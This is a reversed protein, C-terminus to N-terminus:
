RTDIYIRPADTGMRGAIQNSRRIDNDRPGLCWRVGRSPHLRLCAAGNTRPSSRLARRNPAPVSLGDFRHPEFSFTKRPRFNTGCIQAPAKICVTSALTIM